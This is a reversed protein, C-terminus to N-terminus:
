DQKNTSNQPTLKKQYDITERILKLKICSTAINYYESLLDYNFEPIDALASVKRALEELKGIKRQTEFNSIENIESDIQQIELQLEQKESLEKRSSFWEYDINKGKLLNILFDVLKPSVLTDATFSYPVPDGHRWYDSPDNVREANIDSVNEYIKNGILDTASNIKNEAESYTRATTSSKIKKRISCNEIIDGILGKIVEKDYILEYTSEKNETNIIIQM